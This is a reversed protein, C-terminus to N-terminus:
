EEEGRSALRSTAASAAPSDSHAVQARTGGRSDLEAGRRGFGAVFGLAAAAAALAAVAALSYRRRMRSATSATSAISAIGSRGIAAPMADRRGTALAVIRATAAPDGPPLPSLERIVRDIIPDREDAVTWRAFGCAFSTAP